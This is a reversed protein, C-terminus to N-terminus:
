FITINFFWFFKHTTENNKTFKKLKTLKRPQGKYYDDIFPKDRM